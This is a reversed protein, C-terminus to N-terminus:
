KESNYNILEDTTLKPTTINQGNNHLKIVYARCSKSPWVSNTVGKTFDLFSNWGEKEKWIQKYAFYQNLAPGFCFDKNGSCQKTIDTDIIKQYHEPYNISNEVYENKNDWSYVHDVIPGSAHDTCSSIEWGNDTVILEYEGNDKIDLIGSVNLHLSNSLDPNLLKYKGDKTIQFIYMNQAAISNGGNTAVVAFEQLGDKNIDQLLSINSLGYQYDNFENLWVMSNYLQIAQGSIQNYIILGGGLPFIDPQGVKTADDVEIRYGEISSNLNQVSLLKYIKGNTNLTKSKLLNKFQNDTLDFGSYLGTESQKTQPFDEFNIRKFNDLLNFNQDLIVGLIFATVVIVPFVLKKM